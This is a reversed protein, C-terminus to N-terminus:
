IEIPCILDGSIHHCPRPCNLPNTCSLCLELANAISKRIEQVLGDLQHKLVVDLQCLPKQILDVYVDKWLSNIKNMFEQYAPKETKTIHRWKFTFIWACQINFNNKFSSELQVMPKFERKAMWYRLLRHFIMISHFVHHAGSSHQQIGMFRNLFGIAVMQRMNVMSVISVIHNACNNINHCCTKRQTHYLMQFHPMKIHGNSFHCYFWLWYQNLYHSPACVLTNESSLM